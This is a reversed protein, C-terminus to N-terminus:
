VGIKRRKESAPAAIQADRGRRADAIHGRLAQNIATQYGKGGPGPANQKFWEVVLADLRLTLQQKRPRSHFFGRPLAGSGGALEPGSVVEPGGAAEPIDGTDIQSDALAALAELDAIEDPALGDVDGKKMANEKM